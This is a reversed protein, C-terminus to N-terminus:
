DPWNIEKFSGDYYWNKTRPNQIWNLAQPLYPRASRRYGPNFGLEEGQLGDPLSRKRIVAAINYGHRKISIDRCDFGAKLLNLLLLGPNWLTVHGVTIQDKLPPVLICLLGGEQLLDFIAKLFPGPTLTHELSHCCWIASYKENEDRPLAMTEVPMGFYADEGVNPGESMLDLGHVEQFVGSKKLAKLHQGPGCGVDLCRHVNQQELAQNLFVEFAYAGRLQPQSSQGRIKRWLKRIPM